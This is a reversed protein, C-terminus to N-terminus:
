SLEGVIPCLKRSTYMCIKGLNQNALMDQRTSFCMCIHYSPTFHGHNATDGLRHTATLAEALRLVCVEGFLFVM